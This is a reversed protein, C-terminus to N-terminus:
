LAATATSPRERTQAASCDASLNEAGVRSAEALGAGFGIEEKVLFLPRALSEQFAAGVYEGLLGMTTFHLGILLLAPASLLVWLPPWDGGFVQVGLVGCALLVAAGTVLVGVALAIRLPAISTALFSSRAHQLRRWFRIKPTGSLRAPREFYVPEQRFGMWALMGRHFRCREPMSKLVDAVPRTFLQFDCRGDLRQNGALWNHVREYAVSSWRVLFSDSKRSLRVGYVVDAGGRWRDLMELVVAPPEQLDADMAVVVDGEAYCIGAAVAGEKGFNRSLSLIRVQSSTRHIDKLVELTTDRSGDDVYLIELDIGPLDGLTAALTDHTQRLSAGENFCPVIVSLLSRTASIDTM